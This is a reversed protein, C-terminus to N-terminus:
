GPRGSELLDFAERSWPGDGKASQFGPFTMKKKPREPEKPPEEIPTLAFDATSIPGMAFPQTPPLMRQPVPGKADSKVAAKRGRSAPNAIRVNPAAKTSSEAPTPNSIGPPQPPTIGINNIRRTVSVTRQLSVRPQREGPLALESGALTSEKTDSSGAATEREKPQMAESNSRSLARALKPSPMGDSEGEVADADRCVSDSRSGNDTHVTNTTARAPPKFAPAHKRIGAPPLKTTSEEAEDAAIERGNDENDNHQSEGELSTDKISSAQQALAPKPTPRKFAPLATVAAPRTEAIQEEAQVQGGPDLNDNAARLEQLQSIGNPKSTPVKCATGHQAETIAEVETEKSVEEVLPIPVSSTVQHHTAIPVTESLSITPNIAAGHKLSSNKEGVVQDAPDKPRGLQASKSEAPTQQHLTPITTDVPGVVPLQQQIQLTATATLEKTGNDCEDEEPVLWVLMDQPPPARCDVVHLQVDVAVEGAEAIAQLADSTSVPMAEEVAALAPEPSLDIADHTDIKRQISENAPSSLISFPMGIGRVGLPANLASLNFGVLERSKVSKKLKELRPRNKSNRPKKSRSGKASPEEESDEQESPLSPEKPRTKEGRPKRTTRRRKLPLEEESESDLDHEQVLSKTKTTSRTHKLRTQEKSPFDSLNLASGDEDSLESVKSRREIENVRRRQKNLAKVNTHHTDIDPTEFGDGEARGPADSRMDSEDDEDLVVNRQIRRARKPARGEGHTKLNTADSQLADIGKSAVSTEASDVKSANRTRSKSAVRTSLQPLEEPSSSPLRYPDHARQPSLQNVPSLAKDTLNDTHLKFAGAFDDQVSDVHDMDEFHDHAVRDAINQALEAYKFTSQQIPNDELGPSKSSDQTSFTGNNRNEIGAPRARPPSPSRFFDEDESLHVTGDDDRTPLNSSRDTEEFEAEVHADPSSSRLPREPERLETSAARRNRSKDTWSGAVEHSDKQRLSPSFHSSPGNEQAERAETTASAADTEGSLMCLQEQPTKHLDSMMMLGRKKRPKIRLETVPVDPKRPVFAAADQNDSRKTAMVKASTTKGATKSIKAKSGRPKESRALTGSAEAIEMEHNSVGDIGDDKTSMPEMNYRATSLTSREKANKRAKPQKVTGTKERAQPTTVALINPNDVDIGEVDMPIQERQRDIRDQRPISQKEKRRIPKDDEDSDCHNTISEKVTKIPVQRASPQNFHRSVKSQERLPPKPDKGVIRITTVEDEQSSEPDQITRQRVAPLSSMPTASLTLTQGFLALAYGSKSPAPADYKRRKAAPQDPSESAQQRQEFPSEKPVLARGHHGSPTGIVRHLPRTVVPRVATRSLASPAPSRAVAQMQRQEKDKARKDLLESLNQECRSSLEQVQVIVGGRELQVEEGEVLDWDYRWHMDGVFNGRDDYVMVRKNFTHYKLRGDQWRKQKRRLDHTFLCIFELVKASTPPPSSPGAASM